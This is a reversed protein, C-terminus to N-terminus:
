FKVRSRLIAETKEGDAVKNQLEYEFSFKNNFTYILQLAWPDKDWKVGSKERGSVCYEYTAKLTSGGIKDWTVGLATEAKFPKVTESYDPDSYFAFVKITPTVQYWADLALLSDVASAKSANTEYYNAEVGYLKTKYGLKFDYADDLLVLSSTGDIVYGFGSYVGSDGLPIDATFMTPNREVFINNDCVKLLVRSPHVKYDFAGWKITGFPQKFTFYYEDAYFNQSTNSKDPKDGSQARVQVYAELTESAKGSFQLRLDANDYVSSEGDKDSNKILEYRFDGKVDIAAMAAAAMSLLLALCAFLVLLKKM